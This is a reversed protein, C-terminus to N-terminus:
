FMQWFHQNCFEVVQIFEFVQGNARVNYGHIFKFVQGNACNASLYLMKGSSVNYGHLRLIRLGMATDDIDPIPNERAWGIGREDWHSRMLKPSLLYRPNILQDLGSNKLIGFSIIGTFM